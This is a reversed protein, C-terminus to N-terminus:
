IDVKSQTFKQYSPILNKKYLDPNSLSQNLVNANIGVDKMKEYNSTYNSIITKYKSEFMSPCLVICESDDKRARGKTQIFSIESKIMDFCIVLNCSSVDFGEEIM